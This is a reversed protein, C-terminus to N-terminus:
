ILSDASLVTVIGVDQVAAIRDIETQRRVAEQNAHEYTLAVIYFRDGGQLVYEWLHSEHPDGIFRPGCEPDRLKNLGPVDKPSMLTDLARYVQSATLTNRVSSDHLGTREQVHALIAEVIENRHPAPPKADIQKQPSKSSPM